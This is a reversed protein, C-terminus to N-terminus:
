SAGDEWATQFPTKFFGNGKLGYYRLTPQWSKDTTISLKKVVASSGREIMLDANDGSAPMRTWIGCTSAPCAAAVDLNYLNVTNLVM